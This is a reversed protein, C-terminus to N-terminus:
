LTQEATDLDMTKLINKYLIKKYLNKEITKIKVFILCILNKFTKLKFNFEIKCLIM